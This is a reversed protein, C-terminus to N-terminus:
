YAIVSDLLEEVDQEEKKPDKKAAVATGKKEKYYKDRSAQNSIKAKLFEPLSEFVHEDPADTDFIIPEGELGQLLSQVSVVDDQETLVKTGAKTFNRVKPNGSATKGVDVMVAKGLLQVLNTSNVGAARLLGVIAAKENTSVTFTKGVRPHTKVDNIVVEVTLLSFSIFVENQIKPNGDDWTQIEGTQWDTQFQKGLDVIMVPTALYQGEDVEITPKKTNIDLM